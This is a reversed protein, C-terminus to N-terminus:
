NKSFPLLAFCIETQTGARERQGWRAVGSSGRVSLLNLHRRIKKGRWGAGVGEVLDCLRSIVPLCSEFGGFCRDNDRDCSGSVCHPTHATHAQACSWHPRDRCQTLRGVGRNLVVPGERGGCITLLERGPQFPAASPPSRRKEEEEWGWSSRSGDGGKDWGRESLGGGRGGGGVTM